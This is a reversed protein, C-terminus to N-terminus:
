ASRRQLMLTAGLFLAGLAALVWPGQAGSTTGALLGGTGAAGPSPATTEVPAVAYNYLYATGGPEITFREFMENGHENFLVVEAGARGCAEPQGATGLRLPVDGPESIGITTCRVGDVVATLAGQDDRFGQIADRDSDPAYGAIITFAGPDDSGDQHATVPVALVLGALSAAIVSIARLKM